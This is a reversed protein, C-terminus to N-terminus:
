HMHGVFMEGNHEYAFAEQALVDRNKEFWQFFVEGLSDDDCFVTILLEDYKRLKYSSEVRTIYFSDFECLLGDLVGDFDIAVLENEVYKFLSVHFVYRQNLRIM